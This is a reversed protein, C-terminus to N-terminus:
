PGPGKYINFGFPKLPLLVPSEGLNTVPDTVTAESFTAFCIMEGRDFAFAYWEYGENLLDVQMPLEAPFRAITLDVVQGNPRVRAKCAAGETANPLRAYPIRIQYVPSDCVAAIWDPPWHTVRNIEAFEDGPPLPSGLRVAARERARVFGSVHDTLVTASAVMAAIVITAAVVTGVLLLLRVHASCVRDAKPSSSEDLM